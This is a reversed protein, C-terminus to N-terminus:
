SITDRSHAVRHGASSSHTISFGSFGADGGGAALPVNVTYGTGEDEGTEAAAGTGPYFPFQHTNVVLM